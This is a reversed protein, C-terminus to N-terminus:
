VLSKNTVISNLGIFNPIIPDQGEPSSPGQMSVHSFLDKFYTLFLYPPYDLNLTNNALQTTSVADRLSSEEKDPTSSSKGNGQRCSLFLNAVGVKLGMNQFANRMSGLFVM